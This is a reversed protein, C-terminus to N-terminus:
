ARAYLILAVVAIAPGLAVVATRLWKHVIAYRALLGSILIGALWLGILIALVARALDAMGDSGSSDIFGATGLGVAIITHMGLIIRDLTSLRPKTQM